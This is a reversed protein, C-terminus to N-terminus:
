LDTKVIRYTETVGNAGTHLEDTFCFIGGYSDKAIGYISNELQYLNKLEGQKSIYILYPSYTQLLFGDEHVVFSNLYVYDFKTSDLLEGLHNVAYITNASYVSYYLTNNYYCINSVDNQNLLISDLIEGDPTIKYVAKNPNYYDQGYVWFNTGDCYAPRSEIFTNAKKEIQKGNKDIVEFLDTEINSIWFNDDVIFFNRYWNDTQEITYIEETSSISMPYKKGLFTGTIEGGVDFFGSAETDDISNAIARIDLGEIKMFVRVEEADVIGSYEPSYGVEDPQYIRLFIEGKIQDDSQNAPVLFTGHMSNDDTSWTGMWSGHVNAPLSKIKDKECSYFIISLVIFVIHAKRM